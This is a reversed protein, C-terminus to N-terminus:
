RPVECIALRQRDILSGGGSSYNAIDHREQSIEVLVIETGVRGAIERCITDASGTAIADNLFAQAILPDRTQAIEPMSLPSREGDATLGSVTVLALTDSRVGSYMPYTSLPLDDVNRVVPSLMALVVLGTALRRFWATQLWRQVRWLSSWVLSVIALLLGFLRAM